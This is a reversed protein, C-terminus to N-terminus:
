NGSIHSRRALVSCFATGNGSRTHAGRCRDRRSGPRTRGLNERFSNVAIVQFRLYPGPFLAADAEEGAVIIQAPVARQRRRRACQGRSREVHLAEGDSDVDLEPVLAQEHEVVFTPEQRFRLAGHIDKPDTVRDRKLLDQRSSLWLIKNMRLPNSQTKAAHSKPRRPVSRARRRRDLERGSTSGGKSEVLGALGEESGVIAWTPVRSPLVGVRNQARAPYRNHHTFFAGSGTGM